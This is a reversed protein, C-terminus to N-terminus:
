PIERRLLENLAFETPKLRQKAARRPTLVCTRHAHAAHTSILYLIWESTFDKWYVSGSRWINADNSDSQCRLKETESMWGRMVVDRPTFRCDPPCLKPPRNVVSACHTSPWSCVKFKSYIESMRNFESNWNKDYKKWKQQGVCHKPAATAIAVHSDTHTHRDRQHITGLRSLRDDHSRWWITTLWELKVEGFIFGYSVPIRRV